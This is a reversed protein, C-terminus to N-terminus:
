PQTLRLAQFDGEALWKPRTEDAGTWVLNRGHRHFPAREWALPQGPVDALLKGALAYNWAYSRRVGAPDPARRNDPDSPCSLVGMNKMYPWFIDPESPGRRYSVRRTLGIRLPYAQWRRGFWDGETPRPPLHGDWDQTYSTAATQLHRLNSQCSVLRAHERRPGLAFASFAAYGAVLLLVAWLFSRLVAKVAAPSSLRM